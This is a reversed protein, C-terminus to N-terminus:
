RGARPGDKVFEAARIESVTLPRRFSRPDRLWHIEIDDHHHHTVWEVLARRGAENDDFCASSVIRRGGIRGSKFEREIVTGRFALPTELRGGWQQCEFRPYTRTSGTM